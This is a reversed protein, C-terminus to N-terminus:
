GSMGGEARVSLAMSTAAQCPDVVPVGLAHALDKRVHSLGTCGLVVVEAGGAVVERATALTDAFAESGELDLVGRGIAIDSVIRDSIGLRRWYREHRPISADVSSIIGVNRAQAM